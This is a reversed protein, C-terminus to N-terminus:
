NLLVGKVASIDWLWFSSFGFNEDKGIRIKCGGEAIWWELEKLFFLQLREQNQNEECCPDLGDVVAVSEVIM